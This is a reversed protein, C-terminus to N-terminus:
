RWFRLFTGIVSDQQQLSVLYDTSYTPLVSTAMQTVETPRLDPHQQLSESLSTGPLLSELRSSDDTSHVQRSLTDVNVNIRGSRYHITFDFASLQAAWRQETAGLKATNLYSLPNNDTWVVCKHGLLYEQFKETVAWKLALFELKMSSYNSMNRESLSLARSAYAVPRIRGGQDQSLVAGLGRHSADIELIFPQSFDAYALVPATTLSAKLNKFGEECEETWAAGIVQGTGKKHKGGLAAVLRDLPASLRAFGEVFRRYYSAFGLFSRLESVTTPRGWSSVASVKEPDTSVGRESIVHGLYKVATRFFCCKELMVKLGERQLCSLVSELRTLHQDVTSSFVIVDDLYLLLSQFHQAGFLREMLRQFKSPANCLVFPMRNFEFLGFPTCFATKSKDKEAM